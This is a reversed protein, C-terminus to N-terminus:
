PSVLRFYGQGGAIDNTFRLTGSAPQAPVSVWNTWSTSTLASQAQIRYTREAVADFSIVVRTADFHEIRLALAAGRAPRAPNSFLSVGVDNTARVRYYSRGTELQHELTFSTAHAPANTLFAWNRAM